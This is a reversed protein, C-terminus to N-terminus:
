KKGSLVTWPFTRPCARFLLNFLYVFLYIFLYRKLPFVEEFHHEDVVNRILNKTNQNTKLSPLFGSCGSLFRGVCPCYCLLIFGRTADSGPNSPPILPLMSPPISGLVPPLRISEGSRRRQQGYLSRCGRHAYVANNTSDMCWQIPWKVWERTGFVRVKFVVSLAFGRKHFTGYFESFLGKWTYAGGFILGGFEYRLFGEM